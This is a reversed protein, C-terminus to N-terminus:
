KSIDKLSGIGKKIPSLKHRAFIRAEGENHYVRNNSIGQNQMMKVINSSINYNHLRLNDYYDNIGRIYNFKQNNYPVRINKLSRANNNYNMGMQMKLQYNRNMNKNIGPINNHLFPSYLKYLDTIKEMNQKKSYNYKGTGTIASNNNGNNTNINNENKSASGLVSNSNSKTNNIIISSGTYKNGSGEITRKKNENIQKQIIMQIDPKVNLKMNNPNSMKSVEGNNIESYVENQNKMIYNYVRSKIINNPNKSEIKILEKKPTESELSKAPLMMSNSNNKPPSYNPSIIQNGSRDRLLKRKAKMKNDDIINKNLHNIPILNRVNPNLTQKNQRVNNNNIISPMQIKGLSSEKHALLRSLNVADIDRNNQFSRYNKQPVKPVNMEKNIIKDSKTYNPQPLNNSLFILNKPIRITKLLTEDNNPINEKDEEESNFSRFYEVRKKIIDNQLLEECSPRKDPNVQILLKVVKYLDESFKQSIKAIEGKIVKNFLGEMNEARFPPKLTIMEYLVCGLSWIDSKNDYPQDRWVEPSAYYPTGTQTYGVGKRAVKSVNLDGLKASGDLFMFVNASKLDRHLIKLEHLAKLGKVLQIFVRWIETEEFFKARKKHEVIQQYLDGNDAFEMVIGLTSDKEDFFAEKYSIVFTSKVSALIRVENLANQKEKESLNLLKVKKLAYIQSDQKRKVKYVTSYAGEGLKCIIEFNEM